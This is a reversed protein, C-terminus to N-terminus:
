QESLSQAEIQLADWESRLKVVEQNAIAVREELRNVQRVSALREDHAHALEYKLKMLQKVLSGKKQCHTCIFLLCKTCCRV